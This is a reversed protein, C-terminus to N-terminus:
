RLLKVSVRLTAPAVGAGDVVITLRRTAKTVVLPMTAAGDAGTLTEIDVDTGTAHVRAGAVPSGFVNTVSLALPDGSRIRIRKKVGTVRIPVGATAHLKKRNFTGSTTALTDDFSLTGTAGGKAPFSFTSTAGAGSLVLSAPGSGTGTLGAQYTGPPLLYMAPEGGTFVAGPIDNRYAGDPDFGLAQGAANKVLVTVPSHLAVAVGDLVPGCGAGAGATPYPFGLFATDSSTVLQGALVVQGRPPAMGGGDVLGQANLSRTEWDALSILPRNWTVQHGSGLNEIQLIYAGTVTASGTLAQLQARPYFLVGAHAQDSSTIPVFDAQVQGNERRQLLWRTLAKVVELPTGTGTVGPADDPTGVPLDARQLADLATHLDPTPPADNDPLAVTAGDSAEELDDDGIVAGTVLLQTSRRQTGLQIQFVVEGNDPTTAYAARSLTPDEGPPYARTGDARCVLLRPQLDIVGVEQPLGLAVRRGGVPDGKGNTVRLRVLGISRASSDTALSGPTASEVTVDINADEKIRVENTTLPGASVKVGNPGKGSFGPFTFSVRGAETPTYVYAIDAFAGVSLDVSAPTPGSKKRALGGAVAPDGTPAVQKLANSGTNRLRVTVTIPAEDELRVEDPEALALPKFGVTRILDMADEGSNTLTRTSTEVTIKWHMRIEIASRPLDKEAKVDFPLNIGVGGRELTVRVKDGVVAVVAAPYASVDPVVSDPFQVEYTTSYGSLFSEFASQSVYMFRRGPAIETYSEFGVSTPGTQNGFRHQLVIMKDEDAESAALATAVLAVLVFLAGALRRISHVPPQLSSM